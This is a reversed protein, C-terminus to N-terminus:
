VLSQGMWVSPDLCSESFWRPSEVLCAPIRFLLICVLMCLLGGDPHPHVCMHIHVCVVQTVRPNDTSVYGLVALM